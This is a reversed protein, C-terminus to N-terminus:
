PPAAPKLRATPKGHPFCQACAGGAARKAGRLTEQCCGPSGPEISRRNRGGAYTHRYEDTYVGVSGYHTGRFVGLYGKLEVTDMAKWFPAPTLVWRRTPYKLGAALGQGSNHSLSEGGLVDRLLARLRPPPTGDATRLHASVGKGSTRSASRNTKFDHWGLVVHDGEGKSGEGHGGERGSAQPQVGARRKSGGSDSIM